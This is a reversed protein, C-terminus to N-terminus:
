RGRDAKGLVKKWPGWPVLQARITHAALSHKGETGKVFSEEMAGMSGVTVCPVLQAKKTCVPLLHKGEAKGPVKKWPGWPVLQGRVTHHTHLSHTSAM